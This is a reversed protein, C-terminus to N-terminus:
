PSGTEGGFCLTLQPDDRDETAQGALWAALLTTCTVGEDEIDEMIPATNTWYAPLETTVTVPEVRDIETTPEIVDYCDAALRRADDETEGHVIMTYRDVVDVRFLRKM